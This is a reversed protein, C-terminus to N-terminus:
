YLYASKGDALACVGDRPDGVTRVVDTPDPPALKGSLEGVVIRAILRNLHQVEYCPITPEAHSGGIGSDDTLFVYRANTWEAATRMLYETKSDVGSSAVPYIKVGALRSVDAQHLFAAADQDHPPADAVLFAMHRVDGSRWSLANVAELGKEAAEEYDGGGDASQAHLTSVFEPLSSTFNFSRTVYADGVDRYVVLGFRISAQGFASTVRGAIDAIETGLYTIEDSMSGTTDIVFALDLGPNSSTLAGPVVISWESGALGSAAFPVGGPPSVTASFPGGQSAGDHNPFFLATGDGGTHVVVSAGGGAISVDASAIPDGADNTVKVLVRDASQLSAPTDNSPLKQLYSQFLEFNLNDSYDAATIQGSQVGSGSGVPTGSGATGGGGSLAPGGAASSGASSM